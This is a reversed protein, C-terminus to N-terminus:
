VDPVEIGPSLPNFVIGSAPKPYFYTSKQPMVAGSAAVALVDAVQPPQLLFAAQARGSRVQEVAVAADRTYAFHREDELQGERLGVEPGIVDRHLAVVDLGDLPRGTSMRPIQLVFFAPGPLVVGVQHAANREHLAELTAAASSAPTLTFRNRLRALLAAGALGPVDHVLRHTPLIRLNPDDADALLMLVYNFAARRSAEPHAALQRNRYKWATEYRHHGDAIFLRSDALAAALRRLDDRDAVRWVTHGEREVEISFWPPERAVRDLLERLAPGPHQYLAFVPSLNAEVAQTLSQQDARPRLHTREHALVTQGLPELRVVALMGTRARPEGSGPDSFSQRYVYFCPGAEWRLIGERLWQQFFAAARTYKNDAPHDTDHVVGAILRVVNHPDQAYYRARDEPTIVDYPPAVVRALDVRHQDYV